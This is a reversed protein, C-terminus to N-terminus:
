PVGDPRQFREPAMERFFMDGFASMRNKDDFASM